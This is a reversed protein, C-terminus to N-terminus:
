ASSPMRSRVVHSSNLRTSKRDGTANALARCFPEYTALSGLAWGGGHLYVIAPLRDGQRFKNPRIVTLRPVGREMPLIHFVSEVPEM